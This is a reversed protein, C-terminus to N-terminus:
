LLTERINFSHRLLCLYFMSEGIISQLLREFWRINTWRKVLLGGVGEKVEMTTTMGSRLIWITHHHKLVLWDILTRDGYLSHLILRSYSFCYQICYIMFANYIIWSEKCHWVFLLSVSVAVIARELLFHMWSSWKLRKLILNVFSQMFEVM